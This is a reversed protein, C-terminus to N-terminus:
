CIETTLQSTTGGAGWTVDIFEPGLKYMRELRDYLNVVGQQTKPPFYEFSWFPRNEKTATEIKDIVKM